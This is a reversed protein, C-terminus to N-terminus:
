PLKCYSITVRTYHSGATKANDTTQISDDTKASTGLFQRKIQLKVLKTNANYLDQATVTTNSYQYSPRNQANPVAIPWGANATQPCFFYNGQQEGTEDPYVDNLNRSVSNYTVKRGDVFPTYGNDTKEGIDNCTLSLLSRLTNNPKVVSFTVNSTENRQWFGDAETNQGPLTIKGKQPKNGAIKGTWGWDAVVKIPKSVDVKALDIIHTKTRFDKGTNANIINAIYDGRELTHVLKTDVCTIPTPSATLTPTSTPTNSPSICASPNIKIGGTDIPALYTSNIQDNFAHNSWLNIKLRYLTDSTGNVASWNALEAFSKTKVTNNAAKDQYYLLDTSGVGSGAPKKGLYYWLENGALSENPQGIRYCATNSNEWMANGAFYNNYVKAGDGLKNICAWWENRKFTSGKFDFNNVKMLYGLNAAGTQQAACSTIMSATPKEYTTTTINATPSPPTCKQNFQNKLEALSPDTQVGNVIIDNDWYTLTGNNINQLKCRNLKQTKGQYDNSYIVCYNNEDVIYQMFVDGNEAGDGDHQVKSCRTNKPNTNAPYTNQLTTNSGIKITNEKNINAGSAGDGSLNYPHNDSVTEWGYYGQQGPVGNCTDLYRADLENRTLTCYYNRLNGYTAAKSRNDSSQSGIMNLTFGLTLGFFFAVGIFMMSKYTSATKLM